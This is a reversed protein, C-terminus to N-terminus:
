RIRCLWQSLGDVDEAGIVCGVRAVLFHTEDVSGVEALLGGVDSILQYIHEWSDIENLRSQLSCSRLLLVFVFNFYDQLQTKHEIHNLYFIQQDARKRVADYANVNLSMVVPKRKEIFSTNM